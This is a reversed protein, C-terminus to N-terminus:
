CLRRWCCGVRGGEGFYVVADNGPRNLSLYFVFMKPNTINCLFGQQFGRAWRESSPQKQSQPDLAKRLASRLSQVGLFILYAIGAWKLTEFMWQSQVVFEGVGVAVLAGQIASAVGVGAITATGVGRGRMLTNRLVMIFDVGPARVVVLVVFLFEVTM